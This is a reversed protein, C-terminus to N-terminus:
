ADVETGSGTDPLAVGHEVLPPAPEVPALVDYDAEDLSM